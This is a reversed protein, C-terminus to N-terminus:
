SANGSSNTAIAAGLLAFLNKKNPTDELTIQVDQFKRNFVGITSSFGKSFLSNEFSKCQEKLLAKEILLEVIAAQKERIADDLADSGRADINALNAGSALLRLVAEVNGESAAVQLPTRNTRDKVNVDWGIQKLANMMPIDNYFAAFFLRYQNDTLVVKQSM